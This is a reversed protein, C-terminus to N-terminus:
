DIAFNWMSKAVAYSIRMRWRTGQFVQQFEWTTCNEFKARLNIETDQLGGVQLRQSVALIRFQQSCFFNKVMREAHYREICRHFIKWPLQTM